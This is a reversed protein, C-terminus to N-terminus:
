PGWYEKVEDKEEKIEKVLGEKVLLDLVCHQCLATLYGLDSSSLIQINNSKSDRVITMQNERVEIVRGHKCSYAKM